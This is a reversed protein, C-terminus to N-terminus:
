KGKNCFFEFEHDFLSGPPAAVPKALVQGNDIFSLMKGKANKESYYYISLIQVTGQACNFSINELTSKANNTEELTTYNTLVWGLATTGNRIIKKKNVFVVFDKSIYVVKYDPGVQETREIYDGVTEAHVALAYAVFVTFILKKIINM